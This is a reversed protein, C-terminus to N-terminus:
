IFEGEFISEWGSKRSLVAPKIDGLKQGQQVCADLYAQAPNGTLKFIRMKKLQGLKRCYDYHFNARFALDVDPVTDNTHIFLIYGDKSPAVMCFENRIHLSELTNRVFIEHLKEGFLDSVMDRRGIFRLKPISHFHGTVEVVDNMRYRYLGGSTTIVVEYQCGTQLEWASCVADDALSIFEFYHSYISLVAGDEDLVPFSIFGETALLGKPQMHVQPFIRHLQDAYTKANADCWCSIIRLNKWINGFERNLLLERVESKRRKPLRDLLIEAHDHMYDLILMLYTPNWVSILTLNKSKLLSLSTLFYFDDMSKAHSAQPDAAFVFRLLMAEWKGFYQADEEFGIPVGGSTWKKETLAPTVSWYSKGSKLGKTHAYLDYLWPRIGQQFDNKLSATYPIMKSASASGSTLELLLVDEATLLNKGGDCIGDLYEKYDEYTTLPVAARYAEVTDIGDFSHKKGFVSTRNTRLINLLKEEQVRRIDIGRLLRSYERKYQLCLGSHILYCILSM